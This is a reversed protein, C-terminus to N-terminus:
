FDFSYINVPDEIQTLCRAACCWTESFSLIFTLIQSPHKFTLCNLTPAFLHIQYFCKLNFTKTASWCCKKLCTLVNQSCLAFVCAKPEAEDMPLSAEQLCLQESWMSEAFLIWPSKMFRHGTLKVTSLRWPQFSFSCFSNWVVHLSKEGSYRLVFGLWAFCCM